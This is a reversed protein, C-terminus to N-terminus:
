RDDGPTWNVDNAQTISKVRDSVVNELEDITHRLDQLEAIRDLYGDAAEVAMDTVEDDFRDIFGQVPVDVGNVAITLTVDTWDATAVRLREELEDDFHVMMHPLLQKLLSSEPESQWDFTLKM